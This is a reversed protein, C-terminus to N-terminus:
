SKAESMGTLSLLTRLLFYIGFGTSRTHPFQYATIWVSSDVPPNVAFALTTDTIGM